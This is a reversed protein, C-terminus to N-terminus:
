LDITALPAPLRLGVYEILWDRSTNEIGWVHVEVVRPALDSAQARAGGSLASVLVFVAIRLGIM